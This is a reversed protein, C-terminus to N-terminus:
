KIDKLTGIQYIKGDFNITTHPYVNLDNLACVFYVPEAGGVKIPAPLVLDAQGLIRKAEEVIDPSINM